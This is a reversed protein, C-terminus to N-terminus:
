WHHYLISAMLYKSTTVDHLIMNSMIQHEAPIVVYWLCNIVIKKLSQVRGTVSIFNDSDIPTENKDPKLISVIVAKSLM